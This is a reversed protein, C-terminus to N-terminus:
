RLSKEIILKGQSALIINLVDHSCLTVMETLDEHLGPLERSVEQTSSSLCNMNFISTLTVAQCTYKHFNKFHVSINDPRKVKNNQIIQLNKKIHGKIEENYMYM